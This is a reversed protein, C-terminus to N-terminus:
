SIRKSHLEYILLQVLGKGPGAMPVDTQITSVLLQQTNYLKFHRFPENYLVRLVIQEVFLQKQFPKLGIAKRVFGDAKNLLELATDRGVDAKVMVLATKVHGGADNLYKEAQEYSLGAITM